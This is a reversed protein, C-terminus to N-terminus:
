GRFKHAFEYVILGLIVLLVGLIILADLPEGNLFYGLFVAAVPTILTILGLKVADLRKLIYYYLIFGFVSGVSGLYIIAGLSKTDMEPFQWLYEPHLLTYVVASIWVTGAVVHSNPIDHNFRKVLVTSLSHFSSGMLALLLGTIMQSSHWNLHPSFIVLLGTFSIFIGWIKNRTLTFNKMLLYSFLGILIPTLGFIISIWGSPMTQAAYYIPTMGGLMGLSAAFYVKLAQPKLSFSQKSFIFVLPIVIVASILIRAAVGFFWDLHGSWQIALPTTAWIAIVLVYAFYVNM